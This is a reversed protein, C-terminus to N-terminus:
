AANLRTAQWAELDNLARKAIAPKREKKKTKQALPPFLGFNINMPQFTSSD